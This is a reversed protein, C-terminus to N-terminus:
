THNSSLIKSITDSIESNTQFFTANLETSINSPLKTGEDMTTTENVIFNSETSDFLHDIFSEASTLNLKTIGSNKDAIGIFPMNSNHSSMTKPFSTANMTEKFLFSFLSTPMTQSENSIQVPALNWKSPNDQYLALAFLIFCLALM